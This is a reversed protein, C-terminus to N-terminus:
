KECQGGINLLIEAIDIEGDNSLKDISEITKQFQEDKKLVQAAQDQKESGGVGGLAFDRRILQVDDYLADVNGALKRFDIKCKSLERFGYKTKLNLKLILLRLLGRYLAPGNRYRDEAKLIEIAMQIDKLPAGSLEPLRDYISVFQNIQNAIKHVESLATLIDREHESSVQKKLQDFVNEKKVATFTESKKIREVVDRGIQIFEKMFIGGRASYASALILRAQQDQPNSILRERMLNIANNYNGNSIERNAEEYENPAQKDVRVTCGLITLSWAIALLILTISRVMKM